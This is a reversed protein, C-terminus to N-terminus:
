ITCKTNKLSLLTTIKLIYDFYTKENNARHLICSKSRIKTQRGKKSWEKFFRTLKSREKLCRRLIRM